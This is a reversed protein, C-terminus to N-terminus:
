AGNTALHTVWGDTILQALVPAMGNKITHAGFAAVVPAGAKRARVVADVAADSQERAKLDIVDDPIRTDPSVADREIFVRNVRDRLPHLKLKHRDLQRSTRQQPDRQKM